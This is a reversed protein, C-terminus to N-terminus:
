LSKKFWKCQLCTNMEKLRLFLSLALFGDHAVIFCGDYLRNLFLATCCCFDPIVNALCKEKSWTPEKEGKGRLCLKQSIRFFTGFDINSVM